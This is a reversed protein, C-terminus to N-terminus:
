RHPPGGSPATPLTLERGSDPRREPDRILLVSIMAGVILLCACVIVAIRFGDAFTGPREYDDGSIGAVVPLVAVALLAPRARSPTTSGRRREPM